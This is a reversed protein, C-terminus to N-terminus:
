KASALTATIQAKAGAVASLAAAVAVTSTNPSPTLKADVAVALVNLAQELGELYALLYPALAVPVAATPSGITMGGNVVTNGNLTVGSSTVEVYADGGNNHLSASSPTVVIGGGDGHRLVVQNNPVDLQLLHANQPTTGSFNYPAYLTASGDGEKGDLLLFAGTASYLGTSGKTAKPILVSARPDGVPLVHIKQGLYLYLAGGSKAPDPEGNTDLEPDRPRSFFGYPFWPEGPNCSGGDGQVDVQFGLFGDKDYESYTILGEQIM